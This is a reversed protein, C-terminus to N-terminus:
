FTETNNNKWIWEYIWCLKSKWNSSCTFTCIKSKLDVGAHFIYRKLVPHFRSGYPSSVGKYEVPFRFGASATVTVGGRGSNALVRVDPNKLFIDQGVKLVKQM